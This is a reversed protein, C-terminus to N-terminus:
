CQIRIPAILLNIISLITIECFRLSHFQKVSLIGINKHIEITDEEEEKFIVLAETKNNM